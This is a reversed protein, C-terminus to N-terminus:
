QPPIMKRHPSPKGTTKKQEEYEAQRRDIESKPVNVIERAFDRFREFEENTAETEPEPNPKIKRSPM